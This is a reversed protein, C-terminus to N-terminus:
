HRAQPGDCLGYELGHTSLFQIYIEEPISLTYITYLNLISQMYIAVVSYM